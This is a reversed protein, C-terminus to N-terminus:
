ALQACPCATCRHASQIVHDKGKVHGKIASHNFRREHDHRIERQGKRTDCCIGDVDLRPTLLM